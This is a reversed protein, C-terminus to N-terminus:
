SGAISLLYALCWVTCWVAIIASATVLSTWYRPRDNDALNAMALTVATASENSVKFAHSLKEKYEEANLPPQGNAKRVIEDVQIMSLAFRFYGEFTTEADSSM